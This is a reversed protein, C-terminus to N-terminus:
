NKLIGLKTFLHDVKFAHERLAKAINTCDLCRLLSIAANRFGSFIQPAAGKRIRCRDEDMTVDRVWHLRNEIHWLGRWWALLQEADAHTRPVSSIAYQVETTEEGKRHTTRVLRCVQAVDPWDLFDNLVTTSTLTRRELRGRNKEFTEATQRDEEFERGVCPPFPRRTPSPQLM